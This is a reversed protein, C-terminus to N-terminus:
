RVAKAAELNGGMYAERRRAALQHKAMLAAVREPHEDALNHKEGPDQELDFLLYTGAARNFILKHRFREMIGQNDFYTALMVDRERYHAVAGASTAGRLLPMLSLGALPLTSAENLHNIGALEMMTPLLDIQMTPADIKLGRPVGPVKVILPIRLAPDYLFAVHQTHEHQYWQYGHDGVLVIATNDYLGRAKLASVIRGIEADTRTIAQFYRGYSEPRRGDALVADSEFAALGQAFGLERARDPATRRWPEHTDNMHESLFFRDGPALSGIFDVMRSTRKDGRWIGRKEEAPSVWTSFSRSGPTCTQARLNDPVFLTAFPDMDPHCWRTVGASRLVTYLNGNHSKERLLDGYSLGGLNHDRGSNIAQWAQWTAPYHARANTFLAGDRTIADIHPTAVIAHGDHDVPRRQGYASIAAPAIGELYLLVLNPFTQAAAPNAVIFQDPPAAFHEPRQFGPAVVRADHDDPDPGHLVSAYGDRDWDFLWHLFRLEFQHQRNFEFSRAMVNQSLGSWGWFPWSAFGTIVLASAAVAYRPWRRTRMGPSRTSMVALYAFWAWLLAVFVQLAPVFTGHYMGRWEPLQYWDDMRSIVVTLAVLHLGCVALLRHRIARMTPAKQVFWRALPYTIFLLLSQFLPESPPPSSASSLDKAKAAVDHDIMMRCMLAPLTFACVLGFMSAVPFIWSGDLAIEPLLRLQWPLTLMLSWVLAVLIAHRRADASKVTGVRALALLATVGLLGMAAAVSAFLVSTSFFVLHTAVHESDALFRAYDHGGNLSPFWFAGHACAAFATITLCALVYTLAASYLDFRPKVAAVCRPTTASGIYILRMQQWTAVLMAAVAIWDLWAVPLQSAGATRSALHRGQLLVAGIQVTVIAVLAIGVRSRLRFGPIAALLIVYGIGLVLLTLWLTEYHVFAARLVPVDDLDIFGVIRSHHIARFVIMATMVSVLIAWHLALSFRIPISPQPM